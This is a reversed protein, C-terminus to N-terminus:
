RNSMKIPDKFIGKIREQESIPKGTRPEVAYCAGNIVKTIMAGRAIESGKLHPADLLGTRVAKGLTEPDSLPDETGDPAVRKIADLLVKAESVLESMRRQVKMDASMDPMGEICSHIVYRAIKCSEIVDEASAAHHAEVYSVVHIIEPKLAMQLMVSTALRGKAANLDAPYRLLGTRTQPHIIFEHDALEEIIEKKAFQKSLDMTFNEGMPLDFMYTSIFHKVGMKKANYASLFADAVAVVDSSERLEFHHPENVEVPVGREAHWRMLAQHEGIAEELGLPGRKDLMSFWFIPIAAFCNKITKLLMEAMKFHDSTGQYCRMLPFNGCRTAAYIRALDERTRIPVGGAGKRRPDQKEPHFFNEQADQDPALSVIDVVKAKAVKDVAVITEELSPLGIHHRILPFPEKWQIRDVVNDPYTEARTAIVGGRLYAIVDEIPDTGDFIKEFIGIERAIKAVQPTGGFIFKKGTRLLGAEELAMKLQKLHFKGSEPMLRYSVGVFDAGTEKVADVFTKISVAPGLFITKYDEKGALKLFNFVGAVHVDESLAGAILTRRKKSKKLM